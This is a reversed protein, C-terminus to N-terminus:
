SARGGQAMSALIAELTASNPCYGKWVPDDPRWALDQRCPAKDRCGACRAQLKEMLGADASEADPPAIGLVSMREGLLEATVDPNSM